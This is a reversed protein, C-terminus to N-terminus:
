RARWRRRSAPAWPLGTGDACALVERILELLEPEDNGVRRSLLQEGRADLAVCHHHEKGIDVGAWIRFM